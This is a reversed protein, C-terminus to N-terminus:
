KKWLKCINTYNYKLENSELIKRLGLVDNYLYLTKGSVLLIDNDIINWETVDDLEFLLQRTKKNTSLAKYFKNDEYTYYINNEKRTESEDTKEVVSKKFIQQKTFYDQKNLTSKRNNNYVIYGKEENGIEESKEKEIDIKYEKKNITDTVYIAQGVVGNVYIDNSIRETLSFKHLKDKKLDYYYINKIGLVDTNDILVFYDDIIFSMINDYLDNDLIKIYKYENSNLIYLGKYNWILYQYSNDINNKYITMNKYTKTTETNEFNINYEKTKKIIKQFDENNSDLLYYNSIQISDLNCYINKVVNKKYIPIICSLNNSKYTKINKIIKKKKNFNVDLTYTYTNNKNSVTLNYHHTKDKLSYEELINYNDVKYNITYKKLLSKSILYIIFILFIVIIIKKIDKKM